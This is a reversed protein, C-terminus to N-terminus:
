EAERRGQSRRRVKWKGSMRMGMIAGVTSLAVLLVNDTHVAFWILFPIGILVLVVERETRRTQVTKPGRHRPTRASM